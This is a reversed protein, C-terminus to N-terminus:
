YDASRHAGIVATRVKGQADIDLKEMMDELLEKMRDLINMFRECKEQTYVRGLHDRLQATTPNNLGLVAMTANLQEQQLFVHSRMQQLTIDYKWYNKAPRLCRHYNDLAYLAVPLAGFVFSAVEM